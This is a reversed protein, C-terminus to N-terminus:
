SGIGVNGSDTSSGVGVNGTDSTSGVGVNGTDSTSVTSGVGVNGGQQKALLARYRAVDAPVDKDTAM